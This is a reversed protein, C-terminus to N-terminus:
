AADTSNGEDPALRYGIGRTTAIRDQRCRNRLKRRLRSIHVDLTNDEVQAGTQWLGEILESRPLTRRYSGVLLVLLAFEKQSLPLEHGGVVCRRHQLDIEIEGATLQPPTVSKRLRVLATVRAAVYRSSTDSAIFDTAGAALAAARIQLSAEGLVLLLASPLARRVSRVNEMNINPSAGTLLFAADIPTDEKLLESVPADVLHWGHERIIRRLRQRQTQDQGFIACNM